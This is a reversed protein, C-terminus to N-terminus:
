SYSCVGCPSKFPSRAAAAARAAKLWSASSEALVPCRLDEKGTSADWIDDPAVGLQRNASPPRAAPLFGSAAGRLSTMRVNLYLSPVVIVSWALPSETLVLGSPLWTMVLLSPVM